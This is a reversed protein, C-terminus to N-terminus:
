AGGYAEELRAVDIKKMKLMADVVRKSRAPDPDIMMKVLKSSNIQWSVGFRDKLWGCPQESGGDATLKEWLTDIEAQTECDVLFSVAESLKFIPGGNLGVFDVGDLTFAVTM